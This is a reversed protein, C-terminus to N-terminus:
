VAGCGLGTDMDPLDSFNTSGLTLGMLSNGWLKFPIIWQRFIALPRKSWLGLEPQAQKNLGKATLLM